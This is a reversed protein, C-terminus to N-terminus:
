LIKMVMPNFIGFFLQVWWEETARFLYKKNENAFFSTTMKTCKKLLVMLAPKAFGGMEKEALSCDGCLKHVEAPRYFKPNVEFILDGDKTYYKEDEGSGKSVFEIGACALSKDLFERVSHMEGSALVYAKPKKQNLMLWVGEM